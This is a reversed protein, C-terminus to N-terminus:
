PNPLTCTPQSFAPTGSTTITAGNNVAAMNASSTQTVNMTTGAGETLRLVGGAQLNNGSANVCATATNGSSFNMENRFATDLDTLVNNAVTYSHNSADQARFYCVELVGIQARVQNNSFTTYAVANDQSRVIMGNDGGGPV